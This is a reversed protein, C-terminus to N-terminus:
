YFTVTRFRHPKLHLMRAVACWGTLAIPGDYTSSIVTQINDEAAFSSIKLTQDIGGILSPKVVIYECLNEAIVAELDNM